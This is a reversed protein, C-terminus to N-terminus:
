RSKNRDIRRIAAKELEVLFLVSSAVLVIRGWMVADIGTTGFLTQMPGLYTFCLQFAILVGVAILVYRNGLLGDLNLVSAKIYRSNFLYFIEFMVLTNVAITRALEISAGHEREWLFMGFTGTVMILSVFTIRWIFLGTLLPERSDRPPRQM